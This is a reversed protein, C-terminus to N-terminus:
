DVVCKMINERILSYIRVMQLDVDEFISGTATTVVVM